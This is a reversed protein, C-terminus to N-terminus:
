GVGDTEHKKRRTILVISGVTGVLYALPCVFIATMFFFPEDGIGTREWFDEGFWLAFAAGVLNHLLMSAFIGVASAGALILFKKLTRDIDAKVALILLALGLLFFLSGSVFFLTPAFNVGLIDNLLQRLPPGLLLQMVIALLIFVGFLAWFVPLLFKNAM